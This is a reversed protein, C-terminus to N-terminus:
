DFLHKRNKFYIGNAIIMVIDTIISIVITFDFMSEGIVSSGILIYLIEIVMSLIYLACLLKPGVSEKAKLSSRVVFGMIALGVLALGYFIDLVNMAPFVDYVTESNGLYIAGTFYLIALVANVAAGAFLSFYILFNYWKMGCEYVEVQAGNARDQKRKKDILSKGCHPCVQQTKELPYGCQQCFLTHNHESNEM